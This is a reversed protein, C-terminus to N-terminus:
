LQSYKDSPERHVQRPTNNQLAAIEKQVAAVAGAEDLVQLTLGTEHTEGPRMTLVRGRSREFTKSNPYDTAPELGTVYGDADSATNKWQSFAPLQNKNFRLVVAKDAAANRLMALTSGDARALLDYWYVQEIYGASPGLYEDYGAIGEAARADRPAVERAALELRSGQQLFPPGFNCHYLLEMEADVGKTNTVQDQIHLTDSGATTSFCASLCYQPCFLATEHVEGRVIIEPPEGPIIEISVKSAPINAIKGHLTLEVEAPVGMNNLITDRAPAGTSNLGCRVIAEDFGGLWGLGGREQLNVLKPHVPGKVPSNWGIDLNKYRGKWLGMGRTPLISFSFAGNDVEILDVGDCPGGYLRTKRISWKGELGLDDPGIMIKEIWIRKETDTLVWQQGAAM